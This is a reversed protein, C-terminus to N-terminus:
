CNGSITSAVSEYTIKSGPPSRVNAPCDPSFKSAKVTGSGTYKQPAAFRLPGVPPQAYPIGLYESVDSKWTSAHGEISGSSTKVTQGVYWTGAAQPLASALNSLAPIAFLGAAFSHM